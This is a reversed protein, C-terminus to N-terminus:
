ARYGRRRRQRREWALHQVVAVTLFFLFLLGGAALLFSILFTALDTRMALGKWRRKTVSLRM